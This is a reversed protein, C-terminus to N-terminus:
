LIMAKANIVLALLKVIKLNWREIICNHGHEIGLKSKNGKTLGEQTNAVLEMQCNGM